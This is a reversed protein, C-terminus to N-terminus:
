VRERCSARGIEWEKADLSYSLMGTIENGSEADPADPKGPETSGGSSMRPFVTKLMLGSGHSYVSWFNELKRVPLGDVEEILPAHFVQKMDSPKEPKGAHVRILLDCLGEESINRHFREAPVLDPGGPSSVFRIHYGAVTLTYEKM